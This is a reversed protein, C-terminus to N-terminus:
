VGSTLTVKVFSAPRTIAFAARLEALIAVLNKVFFDSHSDSVSISAAERDWLSARKWNALYAEGTAIHFSQVVPIGWLVDRSAALPGGYYYRNEADQLLNFTEWDSPNIVWATPRDKGNVMINTIAKRTTELVDSSFAQELIGDTANTYTAIGKFNPSTGDGNFIQDELADDLDGLLDQNIIARIQGADALARKTVPIWVPITEVNVTRRAFAIAGEPKSGNATSTAEATPAAASVQATQEVFEITDSNTPRVSLLNRAVTPYHGIQEYIGSDEPVIFAGASTEGAGTVLDKKFLGLKGVEIPPSSIGKMSDPIRGGPAIQKMWTQFVEDGLVKDALSKAKREKKEPKVMIEGLDGLAEKLEQDLRKQSVEKQAEKGEEYLAKLQDREPDTLDRDETIAADYISQAKKQVEIVKNM